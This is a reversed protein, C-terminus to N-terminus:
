MTLTILKPACVTPLVALAAAAVFESVIFLIISANSAAPTICFSVLVVDNLIDGM